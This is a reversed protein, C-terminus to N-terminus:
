KYFVFYQPTKTSLGPSSWTLFHLNHFHSNSCFFRGQRRKMTKKVILVSFVAKCILVKLYYISKNNLQQLFRDWKRSDAVLEPGKWLATFWHLEERSPVKWFFDPHTLSFLHVASKSFHPTLTVASAVPSTGAVACNSEDVLINMKWM